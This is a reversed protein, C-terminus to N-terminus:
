NFKNKFIFNDILWIIDHPHIITDEARKSVYAEDQREKQESNM